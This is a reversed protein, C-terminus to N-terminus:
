TATAAPLILMYLGNPLGVLAVISLAAFAISVGVNMKGIDRALRFLMYLLIGTLTYETLTGFLLKLPVGLLVRFTLAYVAPAALAAFGVAPWLLRTTLWVVLLVGLVPLANLVLAAFLRDYTLVGPIMLDLVVLISVVVLYYFIATIVGASSADFKEAAGPRNAILDLWGVAADAFANIPKV